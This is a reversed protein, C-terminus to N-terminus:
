SRLERLYRIVQEYEDAAKSENRRNQERFGKEASLLLTKRDNSGPELHKILKIVVHPNISAGDVAYDELTDKLDRVSAKGINKELNRFTTKM